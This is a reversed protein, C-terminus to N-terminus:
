CNVKKLNKCNLTMVRSLQMSIPSKEGYCHRQLAQKAINGFPLKSKDPTGGHLVLFNNLTRGQMKQRLGGIQSCIRRRRSEYSLKQCISVSVTMQYSLVLKRFAIM